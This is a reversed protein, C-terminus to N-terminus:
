ALLEDNAVFFRDLTRQLDEQSLVEDQYNLAAALLRDLEKPREAML